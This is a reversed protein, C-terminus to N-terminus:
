KKDAVLKEPSSPQKKSKWQGSNQGKGNQCCDHNEPSLFALTKVHLSKSLM